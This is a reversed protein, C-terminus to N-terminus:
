TGSLLTNLKVKSSFIITDKTINLVLFLNQPVMQVKIIRYSQKGTKHYAM